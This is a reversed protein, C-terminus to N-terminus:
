LRIEASAALKPLLLNDPIKGKAMAKMPPLLLDYYLEARVIATNLVRPINYKLVRMENAKLRTDALVQTAKPPFTPRGNADGLVYWFAAKPDDKIPHVHYNKWLEKGSADYTAVKLFLNRFPAGTPFNHPLRNRLTITTAIVTQAVDINMELAVGRAVMRPDHGGGMRHDAISVFEGPVMHGNKLKPVTVIGMHCSQCNVKGQAAAYEEGTTCLSTKNSNSRKDHCGLCIDNSQYLAANNGKLPQPHHIPTPWAANEPMRKTTYINGSAGHLFHQDIIHADIGYRPKGNPKTTGIFGSISHCSTCGIGNTYAPAADLKTTKELAAIPAHCKLCVPFKGKKKMGEKTPDGVVAQYFMAHIPDKIASSNAHMSTRWQEYIEEHCQKCAEPPIHYLPNKATAAHINSALLIWTGIITINLRVLLSSLNSIYPM